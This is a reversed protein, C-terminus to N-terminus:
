ARIPPVVTRVRRDGFEESWRIRGTMQMTVFLTVIAGITVTLGTYGELFFAYSFLVLYCVQALGAEVAAFRMGVVLRLYSVALFVSTAASIWFAAHLSIRDVLYAMLLHFSFFAAALFFYNMPHIEIDRLTAILFLLFFFFLLSLPAFFSIRGLLPGPQLKEPMTIGIQFGSVLSRYSWTLDWGGGRTQKATPSLTNDPFDVDPFDTAVRLRFDKVRAADTGFSYKWSEVGQSKYHVRLVASQGPALPAFGSAVGQGHRVEFPKDDLRFEMEDYVSNAAPLRLTFQIERADQGDNRFTYAGTFDVKYTSYWLLGKQRHELELRVDINSAELLLPRTISETATRSIKKGDEVSETVKPLREHWCASPSYQLQPAGWTSHVHSRGSEDSSYTRALITAGLVAWAVSTCILIFLIAAIRKVM